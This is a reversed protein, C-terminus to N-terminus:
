TGVPRIDRIWVKTLPANALRCTTCRSVMVEQTSSKTSAKVTASRALPTQMM